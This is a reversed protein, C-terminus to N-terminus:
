LPLNCHKRAPAGSNKMMLMYVASCIRQRLECADVVDDISGDAAAAEPSACETNWQEELDARTTDETIRDNWLFAVASAPAMVSISANPIAYVMDAGLAKSGMLTFSAGYAKGVVATIKATDAAAYAMALKGLQLALAAGEASKSSEVGVSDALTIVPISFSDCLGVLKAAKKAGDCTIVGGNVETNNAVVGCTVGGLAIIATIMEEAYEAGIEIVDGADALEAILARGTLGDISSARNIDDTLEDAVVSEENNSPLRAILKKILEEAEDTNEACISALGTKAAYEASGTDKGILFPANVFLQSQEKVTVVLDFMAAVTASLGSCVGGILAIQPIVGSAASVAALVKGYASMVTSGDGIVAGISDFIGVVPAGNKTAMAYLAVIKEAQLTDFAGKNRDSDQSFAYVLKGGIAGYGCIVGAPDGNARKLYAGTETFTGSDFLAALKENGITTGKKM